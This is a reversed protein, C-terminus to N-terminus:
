WAHSILADTHSGLSGERGTAPGTLTMYEDGIRDSLDQNVHNDHFHRPRGFIVGLHNDLIYATWFTRLACQKQIYNSSTAVQQRRWDAHRQLGLASILQIANGFIYWSQNFRSTTLLYLFQILRAQASELAPFGTEHAALYLSSRFQGDSSRLVDEDPVSNGKSKEQHFKAIALAAYVIAAKSRGIGQWVAMDHEVNDEM